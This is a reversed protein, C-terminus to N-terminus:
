ATASRTQKKDKGTQIKRLVLYQAMQVAVSSGTFSVIRSTTGPVYDGRRSITIKAGSLQQLERVTAGGKGVIIGVEDDPIPLHAVDTGEGPVLDDASTVSDPSTSLMAPSYGAGVGGEHEDLMSRRSDDLLSRRSDDLLTSRRSEDLLSSRRSEDLLNLNVSSRRSEDLPHFHGDRSGRQSISLAAPSGNGNSSGAGTRYITSMNSYSGALPHRVLMESVFSLAHMVRELSGCLSLLKEGTASSEFEWQASVLGTVELIDEPVVLGAAAATEPVLMRQYIDGMAGEHITSIVSGCAALVCHPDGAALVVREHTGPFFRGNPTVKVDAGTEAKIDNIRSGGKGILTGAMSNSILLKLAFPTSASSSHPLGPFSPSRELPKLGEHAASDASPFYGGGANRLSRPPLGGPQSRSLGYPDTSSIRGMPESPGRLWSVAAAGNVYEKLPAGTGNWKAPGPQEQQSPMGHLRISGSGGAAPAAIVMQDALRGEGWNAYEGLSEEVEPPSDFPLFYPTAPSVGGRAAAEKGQRGKGGAGGNEGGRSGERLFAIPSSSFFTPM